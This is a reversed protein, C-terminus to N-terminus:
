EKSKTQWILIKDKIKFLILILSSFLVAITLLVAYVKYYEGWGQAWLILYGLGGKVVLRRQMSSVYGVLTEQFVPFEDLTLIVVAAVNSRFNLGCWSEVPCALGDTVGDRDVRAGRVGHALERKLANGVFKSRGHQRCPSHGSSGDEIFTRDGSEEGRVADIRRELTNEGMHIVPVGQVWVVIGVGDFPVYCGLVTDSNRTLVRLSQSVIM